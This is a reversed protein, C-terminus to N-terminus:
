RTLLKALVTNLVEKQLQQKAQKRSAPKSKLLNTLPLQQGLFDMVYGKSTKKKGGVMESVKSYAISKVAQNLLGGAKEKGLSNTLIGALQGAVATNNALGSNFVNPLIYQLAKEELGMGKFIDLYKLVKQADGNRVAEMALGGLQPLNQALIKTGNIKQGTILDTAVQMGANTAVQTATEKTSKSQLMSCSSLSVSLAFVSLYLIKKTM